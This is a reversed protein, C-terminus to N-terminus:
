TKYATALLARTRGILSASSPEAIDASRQAYERLLARMASHQEILNTAYVVAAAVLTVDASFGSPEGARQDHEDAAQRLRLCAETLPSM